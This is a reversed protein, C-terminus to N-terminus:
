FGENLLLMSATKLLGVDYPVVIAYQLRAQRSSGFQKQLDSTVDDDDYDPIVLGNELTKVRVNQGGGGDGSRNNNTISQIWMAVKVVENKTLCTFGIGGSGGGNEGGTTAGSSILEALPLLYSLRQEEEVKKWGKTTDLIIYQGQSIIEMAPLPDPLIPMSQTNTQLPLVKGWSSSTSETTQENHNNNTGNDVLVQINNQLQMQKESKSNSKDSPSVLCKTFPAGSKKGGGDGDNNYNADTCELDWLELATSPSISGRLDLWIEVANNDNNSLSSDNNFEELNFPSVYETDASSKTSYLCSSSSTSSKSTVHPQIIHFSLCGLPLLGLPLMISWVIAINHVMMLQRSM